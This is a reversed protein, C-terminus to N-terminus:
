PRRATLDVTVEVPFGVTKEDPFGPGMGFDRRDLTTQGTVHALDGDLTLTFPLSVPVAKGRLTLTGEATLQGTKDTITASFRATPNRAIDFFEPGAAQATTPGLSMGALPITVAVAGSRSAEDYTIDARWGTFRGAVPQGIQRVSFGLTGETVTWNGSGTRPATDAIPTIVAAPATAVAFGTALTAACLLLAALLPLRTAPAPDPARTARGTVMRALTGDRDILAHKLAGAVHLILATVLLKSAAWHISKFLASLDEAVPVPPLHQGFPWLIPAFGTSAAHALWGSLPMILIAGYLARHVTEALFTELRREPHLPAPRDHTMRWVLRALAIFLVAVGITKHLSYASALRAAAAGTDRPLAKAWYALPINTLILAATLWHFARATASYGPVTQGQQM